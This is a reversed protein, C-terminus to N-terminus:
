DPRRKHWDSAQEYAHALCLVVDDAGNPVSIQLGIPLGSRTFVCSLSSGPFQIKLPIPEPLPKDAMRREGALAFLAREAPM